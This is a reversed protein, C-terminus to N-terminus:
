LIIISVKKEQKGKMQTKTGNIRNAQSVINRAKKLKSTYKFIKSFCTPLSRERLKVPRGKRREKKGRSGKGKKGYIGKKGNRNGKKRNKNGKKWNRKGKRFAKREKKGKKKGKGKGVLKIKKKKYFFIDYVPKKFFFSVSASVKIYRGKRGQRKDNRRQIKKFSKEKLGHKKSKKARQKKTKKGRVKKVKKTKGPDADRRVM